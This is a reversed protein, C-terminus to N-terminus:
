DTASRSFFRAIKERATEYAKQDANFFGETLGLLFQYRLAVNNGEKNIKILDKHQVRKQWFEEWLSSIYISLAPYKLPTKAELIDRYIKLIIDARGGQRRAETVYEWNARHKPIYHKLKLTSEYWLKWGL